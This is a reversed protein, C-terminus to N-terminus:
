PTLQAPDDSRVPLVFRPRRSAVPVNQSLGASLNISSAALHLAISQRRFSSLISMGRRSAPVTHRSAMTQPPSAPHADVPNPNFGNLRLACHSGSTSSALGLSQRDPADLMRFAESFGLLSSRNSLSIQDSVARSM